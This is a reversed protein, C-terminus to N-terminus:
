GTDISFGERFRRHSEEIEELHELSLDRLRKFARGRKENIVEDVLESLFESWDKNGKLRELREKVERRVPITTYSMTIHNSLILLIIACDTNPCWVYALLRGLYGKGAEVLLKLM